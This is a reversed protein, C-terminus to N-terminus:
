GSARTKGADQFAASIRTIDTLSLDNTYCFPIEVIHGAGAHSRIQDMYIQQVGRRHIDQLATEVLARCPDGPAREAFGDELSNIRFIEEPTFSAPFVGNIVTVAVPMNLTNAAVPYFEITENVPLEEPLTVPVLCTRGHDELLGNLEKMQAVLPGFRIMAILQRPLRLLSLAHGTAPADVIVLDFCTQGPDNECVVWRWIRGLSMIEKLGPAADLLYDFLRSRTIRRAIFAPSVHTNIYAELEAKPNVRAGWINDSLRRPADPLKKGDFIRGVADSEGLEVLLVQKAPRAAAMALAISVTTKGVGGKGMVFVLRRAILHALWHRGTKM